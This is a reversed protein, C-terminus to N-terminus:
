GQVQPQFFNFFFPPSFLNPLTIVLPHSPLTCFRRSSLPSLPSVVPHSPLPPSRRSPLPSSAFSPTPPSFLHVVPHSLPPSRHPPVPPRSPLTSHLSSRSRSASSFPPRSRYSIFHAVPLSPFNCPRRSPSRATSPLSIAFAVPSLARLRRSPLSSPSPLSLSCAVLPLSSPSLLSLSCAIPPSLLFANPPPPCKLSLAVTSSSSSTFPSLSFVETKAVRPGVGGGASGRRGDDNGQWPLICFPWCELPTSRRCPLARCKLARPTVWTLGQDLVPKVWSRCPHQALDIATATFHNLHLVDRPATAVSEPPATTTHIAVSYPLITQPNVALKDHWGAWGETHWMPQACRWTLRDLVPERRSEAEVGWFNFRRLQIVRLPEKSSRPRSRSHNLELRALLPKLFGGTRPEYWVFEDSDIHLQWRDGRRRGQMLCHEYSIIQDYIEPFLYPVRAKGAYLAHRFFVESWPPFPVHQVQGREMYPALLATIATAHRDYVYVHEVGMLLAADIWELLRAHSFAVDLSFLQRTHFPRLCIAVAGMARRRGGGSNSSSHATTSGGQEQTAADEGYEVLMEEASGGEAGAGEGKGAGKMRAKGGVGGADGGMLRALESGGGSGANAAAAVEREVAAFPFPPARSGPDILGESGDGSGDGDGDARCLLLPPMRLDSGNHAAVLQVQLRQGYEVYHRRAERRSVRVRVPVAADESPDASTDAPPSSSSPSPPPAFPPLPCELAIHWPHRHRVVADVVVAPAVSHLAPDHGPWVLCKVALAGRWYVDSLEAAGWGDWQTKRISEEDELFALLRVWTTVVAAGGQGQRGAKGGGGRAGGAGDAAEHLAEAEFVTLQAFRSGFSAGDRAEEPSVFTGQAFPAATSGMCLRVKAGRASLPRVLPPLKDEGRGCVPCGRLAEHSRRHPVAGGNSDRADPLPPADPQFAIWVVLFLAAAVTLAAYHCLARAKPSVARAPFRFPLRRSKSHPQSSSLSRTPHASALPKDAAPHHPARPALPIQPPVPRLSALPPSPTASSSLDFPSAAAVAPASGPARRGPKGTAAASQWRSVDSM